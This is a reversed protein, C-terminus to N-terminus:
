ARSHRAAPVAPRQRDPGRVPRQRAAPRREPHSEALRTEWASSQQGLPDTHDPASHILPSDFFAHADAWLHYGDRVDM